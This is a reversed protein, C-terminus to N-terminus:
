LITLVDNFDNLNNVPYEIAKIKFSLSFIDKAKLLYDYCSKSAQKGAEDNDGYIRIEKIKKLLKQDLTLKAMNGATLCCLMTIPEKKLALISLGTEVGECIGIINPRPQWNIISFYAKGKQYNNNFYTLTRSNLEKNFKKLQYGTLLRGYDQNLGIALSKDYYRISDSEFITSLDIKRQKTLYDQLEQSDELLKSRNNIQNFKELLNEKKKLEEKTPTFVKKSKLDFTKLGAQDEKTQAEEPSQTDERTRTNSQFSKKDDYLLRTAEEKPMGQYDTLFSYIGGGQGGEHNYWNGTSLNVTFSGKKGYRLQNGSSLTTNPKGLYSSYFQQYDNVQSQTM